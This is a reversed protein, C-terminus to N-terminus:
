LIYCNLEYNEPIDNGRNYVQIQLGKSNQKIIKVTSPQDEPIRQEKGNSMDVCNGYQYDYCLYLVPKFLRSGSEYFEVLEEVSPLRFTKRRKNLFLMAQSYSMTLDNREITELLISSKSYQGEAPKRSGTAIQTFWENSNIYYGQSEAFRKAEQVASSYSSHYIVYGSKAENFLKKYPKM